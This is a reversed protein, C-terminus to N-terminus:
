MWVQSEMFKRGSFHETAAVWVIMDSLMVTQKMYGGTGVSTHLCSMMVKGVTIAVGQIRSGVVM